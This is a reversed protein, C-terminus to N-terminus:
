RRGASHSTDQRQLAAMSSSRLVQLILPMVKEGGGERASGLAIWPGSTLSVARGPLVLREEENRM